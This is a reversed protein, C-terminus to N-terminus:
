EEMEMFIKSSVTFSNKLWYNKWYRAEFIDRVGQMKPPLGDKFYTVVIFKVENKDM